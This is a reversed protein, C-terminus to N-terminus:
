RDIFLGIGSTDGSSDTEPNPQTTETSNNKRGLSYLDEDRGLDLLLSFSFAHTADWHYTNKGSEGQAPTTGVYSDVGDLDILYAIAQQAASGQAMANAFYSDNGSKDLLCGAAIDWASGQNAATMAKYIDNGEDDILVGFAQHVGFGQAYRNGHYVDDGSFDRLIGLGHYYAGGQSFEGAQYKDDGSVDCLIGIGGATYKRYGFGIGQSFACHVDPTDYVSPKPGDSKYFDNGREDFM